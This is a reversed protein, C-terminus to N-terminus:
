ATQIIGESYSIGGNSKYNQNMESQSSSGALSDEQSTEQQTKESLFPSSCSMSEDFYSIDSMESNNYYEDEM